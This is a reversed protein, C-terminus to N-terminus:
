ECHINIINDNSHFFFIKFFDNKEVVSVRLSMDMEM